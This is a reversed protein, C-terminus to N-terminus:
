LSLPSSELDAELFCFSLENKVLLQFMGRPLHIKLCIKQIMLSQKVQNAMDIRCTLLCWLLFNSVTILGTFDTLLIGDVSIVFKLHALFYYVFDLSVSFLIEWWCSMLIFNQAGINSVNHLMCHQLM